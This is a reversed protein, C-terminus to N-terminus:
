SMVGSLMALAESGVLLEPWCEPSTSAYDIAAVGMLVISLILVILQLTM